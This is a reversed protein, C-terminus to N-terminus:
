TDDPLHYWKSILIEVKKPTDSKAIDFWFVDREKKFWTLQRRIYGHIKNQLNEILGGKDDINKIKGRLYDALVGYELGLSDLRDLSLGQTLLDEAEKIMGQKIREVVRNDVSKYLDERKTNLGIKLIDYKDVLGETNNDKADIKASAIEIARILRRPNKKDSENMGEWKQFNVKKLYEQLEVLNLKSLTNRLNEDVSFNLTAIGYLLAKLYFGTGGVIIPLQGQSLIKEITKQADSIYDAVTYQTRPNAIDYLWIKIGNIIWHGIKKQIDQVKEFTPLKGSGIDLGQYVQRSDCCVLEGKFKKALKLGLDTKGTASPGLICLIKKNLKMYKMGM